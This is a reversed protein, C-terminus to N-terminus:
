LEEVKVLHRIRNIMGRIVSTDAHIASKNPRRLGLAIATAKQNALRGITSRVLTIKLQKTDKKKTTM